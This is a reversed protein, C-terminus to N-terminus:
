IGYLILYVFFGAMALSIVTYAVFQFISYNDWGQPPQKIEQNPQQEV